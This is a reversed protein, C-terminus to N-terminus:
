GSSRDFLLRPDPLPSIQLSRYAGRCLFRVGSRPVSPIDEIVQRWGGSGFLQARSGTGQRMVEVPSRKGFVSNPAMPSAIL